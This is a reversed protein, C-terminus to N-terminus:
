RPKRNDRTICFLYNGEPIEGVDIKLCFRVDSVVQLWSVISSALAQAAMLGTMMECRFPITIKQDGCGNMQTAASILADIFAGNIVSERNTPM